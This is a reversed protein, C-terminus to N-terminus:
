KAKVEESVDVGSADKILKVLGDGDKPMEKKMADIIKKIGDPGGQEIIKMTVGMAKKGMADIYFPMAQPRLDKPDTPHALDITRSSIPNRPNEQMMRTMLQKFDIHEVIAIYKAALASSVGMSLWEQSPQPHLPAFVNRGIFNMTATHVFAQGKTSIAGALGAETGNVVRDLMQKREEASSEPPYMAPVLYEDMERDTSLELTPVFQVDDSLKNYHLRPDSWGNKLLAKLKEKTTVLYFLPPKLDALRQLNPLLVSDFLEATLKPDSIGIDAALAKELEPRAEKLSTILTAPMTTPRTTPKYQNLAEQIWPLDSPEAIVSHAGITVKQFGPPVVIDYKARQTSAPAATPAPATQGLTPITSAALLAIAITRIMALFSLTSPGFSFPPITRACKGTAAVGAERRHPADFRNRSDLDAAKV